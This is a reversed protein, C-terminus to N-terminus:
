KNMEALLRIFLPPPIAHLFLVKLGISDAAGAVFDNCNNFFLNYVQPKVREGDIYRTLRRYQEATLNRHYTTSSPLNAYYDEEGVQGIIGVMGIFPGFAGGHPFFGITKLELPNGSPDQAGYRSIHPHNHLVATDPIRYLVAHHCILRLTDCKGTAFAHDFCRQWGLHLRVLDPCIRNCHIEVSRYEGNCRPGYTLM